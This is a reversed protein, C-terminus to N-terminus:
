KVVKSLVDLNFDECQFIEINDKLYDTPLNWWLSELLKKITEKSFRYKIIRAPVGGVIAYPPVDKTVVSGAALVAGDGIKLGGMVLVHSGIWVDNGITVPKSEFDYCNKDIWSEKVANHAITFIPSTSLLYPNHSPLGIRCYDSISCFKGIHANDIDTNNAVYSYEDIHSRKIKTWRHITASRAINNDASVFAFISIRPNLINKVIGKIFNIKSM